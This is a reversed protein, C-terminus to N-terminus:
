ETNPRFLPQISEQFGMRNSVLILDVISLVCKSHLKQKTRGDCVAMCNHSLDM